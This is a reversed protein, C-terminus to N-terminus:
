IHRSLELRTDKGVTLGGPSESTEGVVKEDTLVTETLGVSETGNM